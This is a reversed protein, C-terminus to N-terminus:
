SRLIKRGRVGTFVNRERDGSPSPTTPVRRRSQALPEGVAPAVSARHRVEEDATARDAPQGLHPGQADGADELVHYASVELNSTGPLSGTLFRRSPHDSALSRAGGRVESFLGEVCEASYIRVNREVAHREMM